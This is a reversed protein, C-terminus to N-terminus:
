RELSIGCLALLMECFVSNAWSFWPRTYQSPDDACVSEHMLFTGADGRELMGLIEEQEAGDRATMAQMCLAMDWVYGPASHESGIGRLAKGRYYFPNGESLILKRTALCGPDDRDCYGIYPMSLLSPLNADDCVNYEGFGDTEYAYIKEKIGPLVGWTEIAERLEDAFSSAERCLEGDRYVEEAIRGVQTLTVCALMNSPILYGYRCADDSPRFGSWILGIGDKVLAGRGGRSLTDTWPCDSREFRYPSLEEHHQETRFVRLVTRVAERWRETFHGTEGTNRWYLYSLQLPFCLSDIEFKREWLEPKMDTKDRAYCAGNAKENFANAYPDLLICDMQKRILGEVIGRIDPEAAAFLLFPRLQCASDRLWMAPIDGTIVYVSGDEQRRITTELTDAMCRRYMEPLRTGAFREDVTRQAEERTLKRYTM